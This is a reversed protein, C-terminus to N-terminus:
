ELVIIFNYVEQGGDIAFFEVNPYRIAIENALTERQEATTEAGYIAIIVDRNAASLKEMSQLATEVCDATSALMTKDCFGIYNGEVVDVGDLVVNRIAHTVCCTQVGEKAALIGEIIGEVNAPSYDLMSLVAYGEGLSKTDIVRVDSKPYMGAAQEAALRINGNNPLVFITDADAKDFAQLFDQTSPNKTQLGQVVVDAGLEYFANCIGEGSAVAVVAFPKRKKRKAVASSQLNGAKSHEHPTASKSNHQITMNEVKLTIFEGFQQCFEFVKGPTFTHVHVKVVTGTQFAVISDGLTELYDIITQVSFHAIDTKSNLLQLLFETCYGYEMKSDENFCTPDFDNTPNSLKYQENEDYVTEGNLGLLGGEVFYMLGAGGSDVVGAQKLVDLMETTRSVSQSIEDLLATLFENLSTEATIRNALNESSERAVTLMTGETPNVVASYGRSVASKLADLMEIYNASEKGRLGDALGAFLQSFIVGSNGRANLLMGEALRDAVAGLNGGMHMAKVGGSLTLTMNDGTDGDPIPFVNLDNIIEKNNYLHAFGNQVLYYFTEGNLTKSSKDM